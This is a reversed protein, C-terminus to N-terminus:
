SHEPSPSKKSLLLLYFIYVLLAGFALVIIIKLLGLITSVILLGNRVGEVVLFVTTVLSTLLALIKLILAM